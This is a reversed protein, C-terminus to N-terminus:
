ARTQPLSTVLKIDKLRVPNEQQQMSVSPKTRSRTATRWPSKKWKAKRRKEEKLIRNREEMLNLPQDKALWPRINLNCTAGKRNLKGLKTKRRNLKLKLKGPM